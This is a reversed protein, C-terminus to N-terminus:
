PWAEAGSGPLLARSAPITRHQLRRYPQITLAPV